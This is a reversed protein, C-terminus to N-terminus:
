CPFIGHKRKSTDIKGELAEFARILVRRTEEPMIVMHTYMRKAKYYPNNFTDEFEDVLQAMLKDHAEQGEKELTDKLVKRHIVAVAGAAGMVAEEANPWSIRIDSGLGTDCMAATAGGYLKRTALRIKPVSSNCNAYLVKAGHRIVGNHEQELGPLFGPSDAMWVMPINFADCLNIFRAMKDSADLDIAGAKIRPQNAIFGVTKGNLRALTVVINTAWEPQIEFLSDKDAILEIVRRVDYGRKTNEPVIENLEPVLADPDQDCPYVPPLEYCNQPMYSLYKKIQDIADYDNKAWRHSVGSVRNHFVADGYTEEDVSEGTVQKIVKPGTLFMKSTKDVSIMLDMLAPSYAAGGACPGMIAAVQPIMGSNTVSENFVYSYPVTDAGEQIRAGGGDNLAVFPCKARAAMQMVEVMKKGHMEGLAGGCTTFDQAFAYVQRGNVKGYGVVIGDAAFYKKEMGFNTCRHEVFMGIEEFTGEDFLLNIRERATLKGREHQKEIQKEGGMELVREKRKLYDEYKARM